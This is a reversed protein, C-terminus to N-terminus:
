RQIGLMIDHNDRAYFILSSVPKNKSIMSQKGEWHAFDGFFFDTSTYKQCYPVTNQTGESLLWFYRWSAPTILGM